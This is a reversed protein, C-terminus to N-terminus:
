TNGKQKTIISCSTWGPSCIWWQAGPSGTGSGRSSIFRGQTNMGDSFLCPFFFSELRGMNQIATTGPTFRFHTSITCGEHIAMRLSVCLTPSTHYLLFPQVTSVSVSPSRDLADTDVLSTLCFLCGWKGCCSPQRSM